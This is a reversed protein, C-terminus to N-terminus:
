RDLLKNHLGLARGRHATIQWIGVAGARSVTNLDYLSEVVPLYFLEEPLNFKRLTELVIDKYAGSRELATKM